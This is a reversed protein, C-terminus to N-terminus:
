TVHAVQGSSQRHAHDAAVAQGLAVPLQRFPLGGDGLVVPLLALPPAFPFICGEAFYTGAHNSPRWGLLPIISPHLVFQRFARM